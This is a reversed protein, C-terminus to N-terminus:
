RVVRLQGWLGSLCSELEIHQFNSGYGQRLNRLAGGFWRRSKISELLEKQRIRQM